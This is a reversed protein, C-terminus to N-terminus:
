AAGDATLELYRRIIAQEVRQRRRAPVPVRMRLNIRGPEPLEISVRPEIPPMEIVQRTGLRTLQRRADDIFENCVERAAQMVLREARRWDDELQLPVYFVHLVYEET